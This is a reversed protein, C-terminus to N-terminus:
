GYAVAHDHARTHGAPIAIHDFQPVATAEARAVCVQAPKRLAHTATRADRLTLHDAVHPLGAERRAGMQVVLEPAVTTRDIRIRDLEHAAVRNRGSLAIRVTRVRGVE